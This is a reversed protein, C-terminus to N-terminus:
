THTPEIATATQKHDVVSHESSSLPQNTGPVSQTASAPTQTPETGTAIPVTFYFTTGQGSESEVWMQGGMLDVIKKSVYLGLGTGQIGAIEKRDARYFKEFLHPLHDQPIGLGSDKIIFTLYHSNYPTIFCRIWGQPTYKIANGILNVLVRYVHDPDAYINPLDEQPAVFALDLSKEKARVQLEDIAKKTSEVLSFAKKNIKLRGSEIRSVNLLDEVLIALRNTSDSVKVLFGKATDDIQGMHDDLIMSLYGKMAATPTLLEHSAISVFESKMQDEEWFRAKEIANATQNAVITLFEIEEKTFIDGSLKEGVLFIGIVKKNVLIPITVTVKLADLEALLRQYTVLAPNKPDGAQADRRLIDTLLTQPAHTYQQLIFSNDTLQLIAPDTYGDQMAEKVILRGEECSFTIVAAHSLRLQSRILTVLTQAAQRIDVSDSLQKSLEALVSQPDYEGKFLYKDTVRTLYNRIPDFGIAIFIAAIFNPVFSRTDFANQGGFLTTFLFIILSYIGLTFALLGSYVVTRKIIVRIDFLQHAIIAYSTIGVLILTYAPTLILLNVIGFFVVLIFDSVAILGFTILIALSLYFFQQKILGTSGRTNKILLYITSGFLSAVLSIFTIIAPGAQPNPIPTMSKIGTFLYPSLAAAMVLGTYIFCLFLWSRGLQLNPHPFTHVLLFLNLIQASALAIVIRVSLLALEPTKSTFEIYNALLWLVTVIVLSGFLQNTKSKPNSRFVLAGLILNGIISIVLIVLQLM